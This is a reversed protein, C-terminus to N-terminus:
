GNNGDFPFKWVAHIYNTMDRQWTGFTKMGIAEGLKHNDLITSLPRKAKGFNAGIMPQILEDPNEGLGRCIYQGIQYRSAYNDHSLHYIGPTTLKQTLLFINKALFFTSCPSAVQDLSLPIKTKNKFSSVMWDTTNKRGPGYVAQVRIVFGNNDLTALEGKLKSRGYAQIPNPKDEETLARKENGDFVYDTGIHFFKIRYQHCLDALYAISDANISNALTEDEECKDVNTMAACNIVILPKSQKLAKFLGMQNTIDLQERSLFVGPYGMNAIEMSLHHGLMGTSGLLLIM